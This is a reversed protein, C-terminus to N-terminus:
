LPETLFISYTKGKVERRIINKKEFAGLVLSVKSKSLGTRLCLTNQEIGEQGRM